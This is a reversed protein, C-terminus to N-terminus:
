GHRWIMLSRSPTNRDYPWASGPRNLGPANRSRMDAIREIAERATASKTSEYVKTFERRVHAM